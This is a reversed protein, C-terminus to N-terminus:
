AEKNAKHYLSLSAFFCYFVGKRHKIRQYLISNSWDSRTCARNGPPRQGPFSGARREWVWLQVRPGPMTLKSLFLFRVAQISCPAYIIKRATAFFLEMANAPCKVLYRWSIVVEQDLGYHCTCFAFYDLSKHMLIWIQSMRHWFRLCRVFDAFLPIFAFMSRLFFFYQTLTMHVTTKKFSLSMM